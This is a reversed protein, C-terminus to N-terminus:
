THEPVQAPDRESGKGQAPRDQRRQDPAGVIERAGMLHHIANEVHRIRWVNKLVYQKPGAETAFSIDLDGTGFGLFWLGLIRHVFLDDSHRATRLQLALIKEGGEGIVDKRGVKGPSFYVYNLRDFILISSAWFVLLTLSFFMYFALNMHIKMLKFWQSVVGIGGYQELIGAILVVLLIVIMSRLGRARASTFVLVFMILCVFSIGLWAKPYVYLDPGDQLSISMGWIRTIAACILGWAWVVWWYLLDSHQYVKIIKGTEDDQSGRRPILSGIWRVGASLRRWPTAKEKQSPAGGNDSGNHEDTM